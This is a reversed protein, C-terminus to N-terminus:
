YHQVTNQNKNMLELQKIVRLIAYNKMERLYAMSPRVIFELVKTNAVLVEIKTNRGIALVEKITVIFKGNINKSLYDSYFEKYFDSGPKTKTDEVVIGTLSIGDAKSAQVDLNNQRQIVNVKTDDEVLEGGKFVLRAKGVINDETDYILFLIIKKEDVEKDLTISLVEIKENPNIVLRGETVEKKLTDSKSNPYIISFVYRVSSNVETKNTAFADLQILGNIEQANLNAQIEKNYYQSYVCM